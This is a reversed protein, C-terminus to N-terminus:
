IRSLSSLLILYVEHWGAQTPHVSDWFFSNERKECVTYMKQGKNNVTGCDSGNIGMCCSKLPNVFKDRRLFTRKFSSYLDLFIFAPSGGNTGVTEDNLKAVAQRLLLNHFEVATNQTTNCKTFNNLFTSTPLCGLPPLSTVVVKKVGTEHIRKLNIKLQNVVQTIFAPINQFLGGNFVYAAYDNGSVAVLAMSTDGDSKSYVSCNLFEKFFDIQVSMNAGPFQTDFVGTGGFAFNMGYRAVAKSKGTLTRLMYPLPSKLGYFRALFDTLVRGDSFRGAPKRPFTIGYPVKWSSSFSKDTNGTDVYSDGFVFLKQPRFFQKHHHNHAKAVDNNASLLVFLFISISLYSLLKSKAM